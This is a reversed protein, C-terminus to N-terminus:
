FLFQVEETEFYKDNNIKKVVKIMRRILFIDCIHLIIFLSLICVDNFCIAFLIFQM